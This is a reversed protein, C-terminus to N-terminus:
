YEVVVIPRVAYTPDYTNGRSDYLWYNNVNGGYVIFVYFDAYNSCYYKDQTALWYQYEDNEGFLLKKKREDSLYDIVEFDEKRLSRANKNNTIERCIRDLEEVSNDYGHKDSM